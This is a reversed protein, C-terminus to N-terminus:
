HLYSSQGSPQPTRSVSSHSHYLCGGGVEWMGVGGIGDTAIGQEPRWQMLTMLGAPLFSFPHCGSGEKQLPSYGPVQAPLQQYSNSGQESSMIHLSITNCPRAM